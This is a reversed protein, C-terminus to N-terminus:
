QVKSRVQRLMVIASGDVMGPARAVNLSWTEKFGGATLISTDYSPPGLENGTSRSKAHYITNYHMYQASVPLYLM